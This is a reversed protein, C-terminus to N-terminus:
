RHGHQLPLDQRQRRRLLPVHTHQRRHRDPRHPRHILRHHNWLLSAAGRVMWQAQQSREVHPLLLCNPGMSLCPDLPEEPRLLLRHACGHRFVYCEPECRGHEVLRQLPRLGHLWLINRRRPDYRVRSAPGQVHHHHLREAGGMGVTTTGARRDLDMQIQHPSRLWQRICGELHGKNNAGCSDFGDHLQSYLRRRWHMSYMPFLPCQLLHLVGWICMYHGWDMRNRWRCVNAENDLSHDMGRVNAM